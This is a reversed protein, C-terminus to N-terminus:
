FAWLIVFVAISQGRSRGQWELTRQYSASTRSHTVIAYSNQSENFHSFQRLFESRPNVYAWTPLCVSLCVTSIWVYPMYRIPPFFVRSTCGCTGGAAQSYYQWPKVAGRLLRKTCMTKTLKFIFCKVWIRSVECALTVTATLQLLALTLIAM